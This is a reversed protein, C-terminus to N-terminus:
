QRTLGEGGSIWGVSSSVGGLFREYPHEHIEISSVLAIRENVPNPYASRRTSAASHNLSFLRNVLPKVFGKHFCETTRVPAAGLSQQM